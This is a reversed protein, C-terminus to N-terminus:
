LRQALFAVRELALLGVIGQQPFLDVVDGGFHRPEGHPQFARLRRDVGNQRGLRRMGYGIATRRHRKLLCQRVPDPRQLCLRGAM